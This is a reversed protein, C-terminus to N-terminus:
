GRLVRALCQDRHLRADVDIFLCLASPDAHVTARTHDLQAAVLMEAGGERDVADVGGRVVHRQERVSRQRAAFAREGDRVVIVEPPQLVCCVVEGTVDFSHLAHQLRAGAQADVRVRHACTRDDHSQVAHLAGAVQTAGRHVQM